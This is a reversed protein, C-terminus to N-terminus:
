ILAMLSFFSHQQKGAGHSDLILGVDILIIVRFYNRGQAFVAEFGQELCYEVLIPAYILAILLFDFSEFSLNM